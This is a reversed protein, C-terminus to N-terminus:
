CFIDLLSPELFLFVCFVCILRFLVLKPFGLDVEFWDLLGQVTSCYGDLFTHLSWILDHWVYLHTMDCMRILWTVCMYIFIIQFPELIRQSIRQTMDCRHILWIVGIFSDYWVSSHTMDRMHILWTKSHHLLWPELLLFVCCILTYFCVVFWFWRVYYCHHLLSPELLELFFSGFFFDNKSYTCLAFLWPVYYCRHLLLPELLRQCVYMHIM